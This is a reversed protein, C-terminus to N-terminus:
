WKIEKRRDLDLSSGCIYIRKVYMCDPVCDKYYSVSFNTPNISMNLSTESRSLYLITISCLTLPIVMGNFFDKNCKPSFRHTLNSMLSFFLLALSLEERGEDKVGHGGRGEDQLAAALTRWCRHTRMMGFPLTLGRTCNWWDPFSKTIGQTRSMSNSKAHM